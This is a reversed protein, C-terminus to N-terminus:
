ATLQGCTEPVRFPHLKRHDVRIRTDVHIPIGLDHLRQSFIADETALTGNRHAYDFWPAPWGYARGCRELADRRLCMFAMGACFVRQLPQCPSVPRFAEDVMVPVVDTPDAGGQMAVLANVAPLDHDIASNILAWVDHPQWAMDTDIFVLYTPRYPHELFKQVVTNRALHLMGAPAREILTRGRHPLFEYPDCELTAALCETFQGDHFDPRVAGIVAKAQM